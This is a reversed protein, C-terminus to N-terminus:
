STSASNTTPCRAAVADPTRFTDGAPRIAEHAEQANQESTPVHATRLARVRHRVARIGSPTGSIAQESLAVSDTRMYTIYGSEYLASRCGAHDRPIFRLKRAAEQLTSTTFPAAPRRKRPKTEVSRM